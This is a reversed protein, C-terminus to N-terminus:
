VIYMIYCLIIYGAYMIYYARLIRIPITGVMIPIIGGDKLETFSAQGLHLKEYTM